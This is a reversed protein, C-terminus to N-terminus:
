EIRVCSADASHVWAVREGPQVRPIVEPDDHSDRDRISSSHDRIERCVILGSFREAALVADDNAGAIM